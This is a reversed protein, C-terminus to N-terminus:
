IVVRPERGSASVGAFAENLACWGIAGNGFDVWVFGIPVFNIRSPPHPFFQPSFTAGPGPLPWSSPQGSRAKGARTGPGGWRLGLLRLYSIHHNCLYRGLYKVEELFCAEVGM